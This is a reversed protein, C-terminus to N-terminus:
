QVKERKQTNQSNSNNYESQLGEIINQENEHNEKSSWNERQGSSNFKSSLNGKSDYDVM